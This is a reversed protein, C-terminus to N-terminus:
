IFRSLNHLSVVGEVVDALAGPILPARANGQRAKGDVLFRRIPTRFAREVQAVTGSFVISCRGAAVEDVRFGCGRLWDTVRGVAEPAPGFEAGFQEPTLWRHCAKSGPDQLEALRRQLREEAGPALKLALIMRAMPAGPDAPGLERAAALAAPVNGGPVLFDPAPAGALLLGPLTLLSIRSWRSL